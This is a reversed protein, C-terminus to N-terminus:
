VCLLECFIQMNKVPFFIELSCVYYNVFFYFFSPKFFSELSCVYYNVLLLPIPLPIAPFFLIELSCVYYKVKEFDTLLKNLNELSCVYYDVSSNEPM